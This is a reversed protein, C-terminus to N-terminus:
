GVVLFCYVIFPFMACGYEEMFNVIGYNDCVVYEYGECAGGVFEICACEGGDKGCEISLMFDKVLALVITSGHSIHSSLNM